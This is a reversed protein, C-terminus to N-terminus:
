ILGAHSGPIPVPSGRSRRPLSDGRRRGPRCDHPGSELDPPLLAGVSGHSRGRTSPPTVRSSEAPVLSAVGHSADPRQRAGGRGGRLPGGPATSGKLRTGQDPRQEVGRRRGVSARVAGAPYTPAPRNPRHATGLGAGHLPSGGHSRLSVSRHRGGLLRVPVGANGKQWTMRVPCLGVGGPYGDFSSDM